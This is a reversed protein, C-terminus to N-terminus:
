PKSRRERDRLASKIKTVFEAGEAPRMPEFTEPKSKARPEAYAGSTTM